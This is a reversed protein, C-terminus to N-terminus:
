YMELVDIVPPVGLRMPLGVEGVGSSVFVTGGFKTEYIGQDFPGICPIINKYYYPIRIQGGHTHGTITLDEINNTYDLTTDPNHTLVVLHDTKSFSDILSTDDENAWKDGLGLVTIETNMIKQSSNHLFIVGNKELAEQLQKQIPPGPEESDHNGLVAYVPVQLDKLPAFLSVLDEPPYYTFDGPILVVDIDELMNIKEVIRELFHAGKYVGLHIDSFVAFRASFENEIRTTEVRIM